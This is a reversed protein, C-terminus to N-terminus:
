FIHRFRKNYRAGIDDGQITFTSVVLKSMYKILIKKVVENPTKGAIIQCEPPIAFLEFFEKALAKIGIKQADPTDSENMYYQLLIQKCKTHLDNINFDNGNVLAM